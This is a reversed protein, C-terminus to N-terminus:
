AEGRPLPVRVEVRTGKGPKSRISLTGGVLRVREDMSILGLGGKRRAQELEFGDGIDEIVLAINGGGATLAVRVGRAHAHKGINRLSEQAVRYLCLSIEEPLPDPVNQPTFEAPIGYQESFALCESALAAALGLDEVIAPHLRRSMGHIYNALGGIQGAIHRLHAGLAEPSQHAQQALAAIDMGLVALKQSFVDHLERALRKSSEEQASILQANLAKLEQQYRLFGAESQKLETIDRGASQFEVIRGQDNFLARTVWQSWPGGPGQLRHVFTVVPKEPSFAALDRRLMERDTEPVLEDLFNHGILEDPRKGFHRCFAQNVFTLTGDPLFRSILETQDEVIARYRTESAELARKAELQETTDTIALLIMGTGVGERRLQRANVLIHRHGIGPFEHDVAFDDIRADQPLLQELLQRLRPINWQGGGLEFVSRGLTQKAPAQFHQYFSTNATLVRMEADLVLLPERVTEVIAEAYDRAQRVQELSRKVTDIDLLAMLLGDIRNDATKYPRMRLIYWHGQRDQVEREVTRLHDFVESFLQDWNAILNSAIHAFPRGVDTAILNMVKEAMPTFRRIRLDRDLIAIPINVGVLLNSVDNALQSLEANSNQLEENLTTLEENSSQLEEKTTELEENTSQLEENASLVEENAAKLEEYTAEHDEVLSRLYEHSSTLERRLRLVERGLGKSTIESPAGETGRADDPSRRVAAEEFLVLFDIGRTRRGRLPLVEVRITKMGGDGPLRIPGTGAAVGNKKVKQIAARVDVVLEPRLIRLLHFSPEGSAPAVYQRTDGHFHVVHLDPDVVMAAPALRELLIREAEKKLDFAAAPPADGPLQRDTRARPNAATDQPVTLAPKRSFIKHTRDEVAFLNAHASLSESKGLFLYGDPRLAYHFLEVTRKQLAAGMYILVNRCSILDLNSFPPDNALDHRAFVCMERLQKNVQYGREVKVFFKRLRARSVSALDAEPYTASRAKQIAPESIDTGFMQIRTQEDQEGLAEQLLVAISYVEEGTACGPVWVRIPQGAPKRALIHPLAKTSLAHFAEPDRFFSTVHVLLDQYLAEVEADDKRLMGLYKEINEVRRLAMRRAIRRSISAPKYQFFDVGTASRLLICIKRFGNGNEDALETAETARPVAIYPHRGLRSLESAIKEPPLVFDVCGAVVASMPMGNHRASKEDQAFTLGGEAKIAELGRTGDSATGSLIIGIAASKRDEALSRFFRDIPLHRGAIEQREALRLIGGEITMDANSPIVYVRNPKVPIGDTVEDVPMETARSLIKSLSSEHAPDMHQILVFAMGTDHPLAKLLATFAELGGASAGVGAVPFSQSAAPGSVNVAPGASGKTPGALRKSTNIAKQGAKSTKKSARITMLYGFSYIVYLKVLKLSTRNQVEDPM